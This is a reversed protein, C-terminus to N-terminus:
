NGVTMALKISGVPNLSDGNFGYLPTPTPTLQLLGLGIQEYAGLYLIDVLSGNDVLTRNVNMNGITTTIVLPDNYPPHVWWGDVDIFIIDETKSRFSKSPKEELHHM